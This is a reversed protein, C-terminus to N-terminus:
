PEKKKKVFEKIKKAITKAADEKMIGKIRESLRARQEDDSALRCITEAFREPTVEGDDFGLAADKSIFYHANEEQHGRLPLLLAPKGLCALESLTGMGSRAVVVDAVAFADALEEVLFEFVHYRESYLLRMNAVRAVAEDIKFGLGALHIVQTRQLLPEISEIVLENIRRAGTGGGLVLVVPLDNKLSFTRRARAVDGHLLEERVPNGTWLVEKKEFAKLHEPFAATICSAWKAMLRNALGVRVDQQHVFVPINLFKAARAVPVAVYSGATLVVDARFRYLVVCAQLFGIVIRFPDVFSKFSFYRRWKGAAIPRFAIGSAEVLRREPGKKTGLWLAGLEERRVEKKLESYIALLPTVSGGTGGGAFLIKM